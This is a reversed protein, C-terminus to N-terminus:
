RSGRPELGPLPREYWAVDWYRGFKRGQETFRGVLRFGFALHLAVSADNPVAIGALARHIDQGDLAEFLTRYLATGVGTRVARPAVHVSTEVSTEYAAKPRFPGSSCFGVVGGDREAVFVRYRGSSREDFWLRRWELSREETDFTVHSTRVYHNYLDNVAELDEVSCPRITPQTPTV